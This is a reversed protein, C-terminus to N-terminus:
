NEEGVWDKYGEAELTDVLEPGGNKVIKGKVMVHVFGPKLFELIRKYHTIVLVGTGHKKAVKVVGASVKKIADIDLGSDTEDLIAYKPELVAMQLIELQKKEGGSFGENLGRTLLEPNIQLEAALAKLHKRFDIVKAFLKKPEDAFRAQHAHRLFNQVKVGPVEVPYQFALFLGMQAREDPSKELLSEGDLLMDGSTVSYTPHGALTAATTSKGSGNPGMIAHIEGPKVSLSIGKLIEKEEISVHLNTLELQQTM